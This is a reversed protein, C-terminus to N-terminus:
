ELIGLQNGKIIKNSSKLRLINRLSMLKRDRFKERQRYNIAM